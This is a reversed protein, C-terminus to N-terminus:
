VSPSQMSRLDIGAFPPTLCKNVFTRQEDIHDEKM